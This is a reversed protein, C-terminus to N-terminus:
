YYDMQITIAQKQFDYARFYAHEQGGTSTRWHIYALTVPSGSTGFQVITADAPIGFHQIMWSKAEDPTNPNWTQASAIQMTVLVVLLIFRSM